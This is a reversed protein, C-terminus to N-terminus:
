IHKRATKVILQSAHRVHREENGRVPRGSIVQQALLGMGFHWGVYDKHLSYQGRHGLLDM